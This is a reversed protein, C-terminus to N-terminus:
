WFLHPDEMTELIFLVLFILFVNSFQEFFQGLKLITEIPDESFHSASSQISIVFVKLATFYMNNNELNVKRTFKEAL